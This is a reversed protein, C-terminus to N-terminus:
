AADAGRVGALLAQAGPAIFGIDVGLVVFSCGDSILRRAFPATNAHAGTPVGHRAAAQIVREIVALAKPEPDAGPPALGLTISLDSPGIYIGGLGSVAAIDDVRAAAEETEIMAIPLVTDNSRAFYDQGGYVAARVPGWSRYGRPSYLCAEVFDKCEAASNIMPCIVSYAGADLAQMVYPPDNWPVRVVPTAGTTSIAQMMALMADYGIAGHQMDVLIADYGQNAM